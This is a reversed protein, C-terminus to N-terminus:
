IKTYDNKLHHFTVKKSYQELNRQVRRWIKGHMTMYFGDNNCEINAAHPLINAKQDSEIIKGPKFHAEGNAIIKLLDERCYNPSFKCPPLSLKTEKIMWM